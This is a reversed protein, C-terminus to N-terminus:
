EQPAKWTIAQWFCQAPTQFWVRKHLRAAAEDPANILDKLAESRAKAFENRLESDGAEIAEKVLQRWSEVAEWGLKKSRAIYYQRQRAESIGCPHPSGFFFWTLGLYLGVTFVFFLIAYRIRNTHVGGALRSCEGM